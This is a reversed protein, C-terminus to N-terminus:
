QAAQELMLHAKSRHHATVCGTFGELKGRASDQCPLIPTRQVWLPNLVAIQSQVGSAVRCFLHALCYMGGHCSSGTGGMVM